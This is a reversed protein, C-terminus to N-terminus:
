QNTSNLNKLEDLSRYKTLRSLGKRNDEVLLISGNDLVSIGEVQKHFKKRLKYAKAAHSDRDVLVLQNGSVLYYHSVTADIATLRLKKIGDINKRPISFLESTEGTEINYRFVVLHNKFRKRLPTKCPLLLDGNDYHLGEIECQDSLGTSVAADNIVRHGNSTDPRTTRYVTGKSTTLFITSPSAAIGEFDRRITPKGISAVKLVTGNHINVRYINGKEDNHAYVFGSDAVALGSAERLFKPLVWQEPRLEIEGLQSKACAPLLLLAFLYSRLPQIIMLSAM